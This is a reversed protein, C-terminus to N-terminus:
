RSETLFTAPAPTSAGPERLQFTFNVANSTFLMGGALRAPIGTVQFRFVHFRAQCRFRDLNVSGPPNTPFFPDPVAQPTGASGTFRVAQASATSAILPLAKALLLTRM